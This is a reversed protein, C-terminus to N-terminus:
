SSTTIFMWWPRHLTFHHDLLLVTVRCVKQIRPSERYIRRAYGNYLPLVGTIAELASLVTGFFIRYM